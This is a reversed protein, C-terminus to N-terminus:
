RRETLIIKTELQKKGRLVTLTIKDGVNSNELFDQITKETNIKEGNCTLVIDKEKIGAKDAPSGSVVGHDAHSEGLVLAGYDVPLNMQAKINENVTIYRLGLLPRKIHGFKKLDHLDRKASNSPIAFGINQAGFLIAANIGIVEGFINVLPGGSNGPNIAADTQILGRMEQPPATPDALASIARSLGSVIGMSVTDRFIGLANGFALVTQGMEIKSSDGLPITPLFKESKIKLIAVDNIPDRALVEAEHKGCISTYITYEAHPDAIVHKNTLILAEGKATHDVIFGSGGGIQVMGRADIAEKPIQLKPSEGLPLMSNIQPMEKELEKADKSIIISVVAPIIKRVTKVVQSKEQM